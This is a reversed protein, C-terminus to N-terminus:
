RGKNQGNLATKYGKPITKGYLGTRKYNHTTGSVSITYNNSFIILAILLNM